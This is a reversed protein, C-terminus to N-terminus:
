GFTVTIVGGESTWTGTVTTAAVPGAAGVDLVATGDETTLLLAKVDWRKLSVIADQLEMYFGYYNIPKLLYSRARVEYGNIAYQAMNTILQTCQRIIKLHCGIFQQPSVRLRHVSHNCSGRRFQANGNPIQRFTM